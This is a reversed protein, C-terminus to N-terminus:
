DGHSMGIMRSITRQMEVGIASQNQGQEREFALRLDPEWRRRTGM